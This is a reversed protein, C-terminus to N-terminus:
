LRGAISKLRDVAWPEINWVYEGTDRNREPHHRGGVIEWVFSYGSGNFVTVERKIRPNLIHVEGHRESRSVLHYWAHM